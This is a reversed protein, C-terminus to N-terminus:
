LVTGRKQIVKLIERREENLRVYDSFTYMEFTDAYYSDGCYIRRGTMIIQFKLVTPANCLDILDIRDKHLVDICVNILELRMDMSLKRPTLVAIDVDSESTEYHTGYSGFLYIAVLGPLTKQIIEVLKETNKM